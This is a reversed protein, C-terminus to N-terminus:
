WGVDRTRKGKGARARAWLARRAQLDPTGILFDFRILDFRLAHFHRAAEAEDAEDEVVFAWAERGGAGGLGAMMAM